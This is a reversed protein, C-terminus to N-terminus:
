KGPAAGGAQAERKAKERMELARQYIVQAAKPNHPVGEGNQLASAFNICGEVSGNECSLRFYKAALVADKPVGVGAAYHVALQYCGPVYSLKCAKGFMSAARLADKNVGEGSSHRIGMLYCAEPSDLDCAKKSYSAAAQAADDVGAFVDPHEMLTVALLLCGTADNAECGRNYLEAGQAVDAAAVGHGTAQMRGAMTCSAGGGLECGRMFSAFSADLRKETGVGYTQM